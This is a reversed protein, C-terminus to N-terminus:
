ELGIFLLATHQGGYRTEFKLDEFEEELKATVPGLDEPKVNDNYYFSVTM